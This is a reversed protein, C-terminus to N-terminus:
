LVFRWLITSRRPPGPDPMSVLRFSCVNATLSRIMSREIGQQRVGDASHQRWARAEVTM